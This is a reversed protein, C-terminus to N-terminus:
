LLINVDNWDRWEKYSYEEDEVLTFERYGIDFSFIHLNIQLTYDANNADIDDYFTREDTSTYIAFASGELCSSQNDFPKHWEKGIIKSAIMSSLRDGMEIYGEMSEKDDLDDAKEYKQALNTIKKLLSKLLRRNRSINSKFIEVMDDDDSCDSSPIQAYLAQYSTFGYNTSIKQLAQNYSIRQTKQIEKANEKINQLSIALM